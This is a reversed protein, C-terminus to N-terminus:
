GSETRAQLNSFSDLCMCLTDCLDSKKHQGALFTLWATKNAVTEKEFWEKVRTESAKKRESYGKDGGTAGKTKRSAHVFGVFVGPLRERLTAFLLVQLSKMTPNKFAPQNELLITTATRFLELRSDAFKQLATHLHALDSNQKGSKKSPVIPIAFKKRLESVIEERRLNKTPLNPITKLFKLQPIIKYPVGSLDTLVPFNPPAHKKCIITNGEGYTHTGKKSCTTCVPKRTSEESTTGALLDFNEWGAIAWTKKNEPAETGELLCWALNRIGIDFTLIRTPGPM